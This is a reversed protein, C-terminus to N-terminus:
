VTKDKGITIEAFTNGDFEVILRYFAMENEASRSLIFEKFDNSYENSSKIYNQLATIDSNTFLVTKAGISNVTKKYFTSLNYEPHTYYSIELNEEGNNDYASIDIFGNEEAELATILSQYGDKTLIDSINKIYYLDQITNYKFTIDYNRKVASFQVYLFILTGLVFTSVVLTEFLMFGKVNKKM